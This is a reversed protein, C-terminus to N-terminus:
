QKVREGVRSIIGAHGGGGGILLGVGDTIPHLAHDVQDARRHLRVAPVDLDDVDGGVVDDLDAEVAGAVAARAARHGELVADDAHARVVSPHPLVTRRIAKEMRGDVRNMGVPSAIEPDAAVPAQAPQM